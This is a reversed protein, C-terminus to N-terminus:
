KKLIRWDKPFYNNTRGDMVKIWGLNRNQYKVLCWGRISTVTKISEGRLYVIAQDYDLEISPLSTNIENSLAVDHSPLFDKGKTTGMFIGANRIYLNKELIAFDTQMLAPIAFVLDNKKFEYFEEPAQLLKQNETEPKRNETLQKRNSIQGEGGPKQIVVLYFGEGKIKHPFFQVGYKTRVLGPIDTVGPLLCSDVPLQEIQGDNEAPEYTCTSYIIYGGPRLCELANQLIEKQRLSCMVVNKESWEEIADKDKRFLGEGSCPADILIVDFYNGLKAFDEAKNQTIICNANGWKIINQQLIKNRNPILENSVLLSDKSILSLLHTSKGGPAACLDLVRVSQNDPNIQKWAEEVFMSSAEQVYYCGAQFLPDFTFSPREALYRGNACWPVQEEADFKTILKSPNLRISTPSPSSLSQIFADFEPGLLTKMGALFAEPFKPTDNMNAPFITSNYSYFDPAKIFTLINFLGQEALVM